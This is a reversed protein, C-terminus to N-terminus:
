ELKFVLDIVDVFNVEGDDNHDLADVQAPTLDMRQIENLGFVFGIVDQFDFEGDGLIDEYADDDDVNLPPGEGEVSPLERDFANQQITFTGTTSVVASQNDSDVATHVYRYTGNDWNTNTRVVVEDSPSGAEVGGVSASLVEDDSAGAPTQNTVDTAVYDTMGALSLSRSQEGDSLDVGSVQVGDPVTNTGVVAETSHDLSAGNQLTYTRDLQGADTAISHSSAEFTDEEYVLVVHDVDGDLENSADVNLSVDAASTYKQKDTSASAAGRQVPFGDVGVLTVDSQVSLDGNQVSLGGSENATVALFRYHGPSPPTFSFTGTGESSLNRQGVSFYTVDSSASGNLLDVTEPVDQPIASPDAATVRVAVVQVFEGSLDGSGARSDDITFEVPQGADEVALRPRAASTEGVGICVMRLDPAQVQTPADGLNARLTLASREWVAVDNSANYVQDTPVSSAQQATVPDDGSGSLAASGLGGAGAAAVPAVAVVAALAIAVLLRQLTM